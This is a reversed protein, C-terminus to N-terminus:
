VAVDKLKKVVYNNLSDGDQLARITLIRHLQPEMRLIFKGSYDKGASPDPPVRGEKEYVEIWEEVIKKLQRLVNDERKGHCCAGILPPASGVFCGDEEDWEVVKIYDSARIKRTKM